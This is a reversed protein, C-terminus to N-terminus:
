LNLNAEYKQNSAMMEDWTVEKEDYAAMRGLISTLTSEAGQATENLYKGNRISEELAQVKYAVTGDLPSDSDSRWANDGTIQPYGDYPTDACGKTGFIRERCDGWGKLFQTSSFDIRIDNPYYYICEFHDWCDGIDVRAKRGGTGYAKVPHGNMYWNAVDIVHINQEVIIDGSLVQDFVWNRLRNEAESAGSVSRDGLRGTHYYVMGSVIEGIAGQHVREVVGKFQPSTRIQFGVAMSVKGEAKKGAEVVQKAGVVDVAVPKELYVHKGAEVAHTFHLPHYYPPSTILVVDVDSQLLEQYSEMGQYLRKADIEARGMGSLRKDLSAKTSELRDQFPDSLAVVQTNTSRIFDGADSNGRGGCGIVGLQLASNAPAGYVSEPRVFVAGAGAALASKMFTRRPLSSNRSVKQNM